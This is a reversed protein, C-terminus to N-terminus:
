TEKKPWQVKHSELYMCSTTTMEDKHVVFFLLLLSSLSRKQELANINWLPIRLLLLLFLFFVGLLIAELRLRLWGRRNEEIRYIYIKKSSKNNNNLESLIITLFRATSSVHATTQNPPHHKIQISLHIWMFHLTPCIKIQLNNKLFM